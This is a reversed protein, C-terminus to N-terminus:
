GYPALTGLIGYWTHPVSPIENADCHLLEQDDEDQQQYEAATAGGSAPPEIEACRVSRRLCCRRRQLQRLKFEIRDRDRDQAVALRGVLEEEPDDEHEVIRQLHFLDLLFQRLHIVGDRHLQVLQERALLDLLLSELLRQDPLSQLFRDPGAHAILLDVADRDAGHLPHVQLLVIENKDRAACDRLTAVCTSGGADTDFQRGARGPALAPWNPCSSRRSPTPRSLASAPLPCASRWM